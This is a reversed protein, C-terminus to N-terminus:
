KNRNYKALGQFFSIPGYIVPGYCIWYYGGSDMAASFTLATIACGVVFIVAGWIMQNKGAKREAERIQEPAMTPATWVPPAGVGAPLVTGTLAPPTAPPTAPATLSVLAAKDKIYGTNGNDDKIEIWTTGEVDKEDTQTFVTGKIYRSKELATPAPLDYVIVEEADVKMQKIFFVKTDGRIFGRRYNGDMVEVWQMGQNTLVRGLDLEEGQAVRQVQPATDEMSLRIIAESDLIRAKM